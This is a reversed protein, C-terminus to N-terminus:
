RTTSISRTSTSTCSARGPTSRSACIAADACTCRPSARRRRSRRPSCTPRTSASRAARPVRTGACSRPSTSASCRAGREAPAIAVLAELAVRGRARPARRRARVRRRGARRGRRARRRAHAPGRVAGEGPAAAEAARRRRRPVHAARRARDRDFTPTSRTRERRSRRVRRSRATPTRRARRRDRAGVARHLRRAAHADSAAARGAARSPLAVRARGRGGADHHPLSGIATAMGPVFVTDPM